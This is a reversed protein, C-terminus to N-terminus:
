GNTHGENPKRRQVVNGFVHNFDRFLLDSQGPELRPLRKPQGSALFRQLDEHVTIDDWGNTNPHGYYPTTVGTIVVVRCDWHKQWCLFLRHVGDCVMPKDSTPQVEVVPPLLCYTEGDVCIEWLGDVRTLTCGFPSLSHNLKELSNLRNRLCYFQSPVLDSPRVTEVSVKCDAYPRFSSGLLPVSRMQELM